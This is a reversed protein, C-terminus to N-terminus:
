QWFLTTSPPRADRRAPFFFPCKVNWPCFFTIECKMFFHVKKCFNYKEWIQYFRAVKHSPKRAQKRWKKNLLASMDVVAACVNVQETDLIVNWPRLTTQVADTTIIEKACPLILVVIVVHFLIVTWRSNVGPEWKM